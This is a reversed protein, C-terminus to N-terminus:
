RTPRQRFRVKRFAIKGAGVQAARIQGPCVEGVTRQNERIQALGIERRGIQGPRVKGPRVDRFADKACGPQISHDRHRDGEAARVPRFRTLLSPRRKGIGVKGLCMEPGSIKGFGVKGACFKVM